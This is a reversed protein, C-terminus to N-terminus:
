NNDKRKGPFLLPKFILMLGAAIFGLAFALSNDMFESYFIGALILLTLAPIIYGWEKKLLFLVFFGLGPGILFNPWTTEAHYWGVQNLWLFYGMYFILITVPLWIGM